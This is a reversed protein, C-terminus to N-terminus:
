SDPEEVQRLGEAAASLLARERSEIARVRDLQEVDIFTDVAERVLQELHAPDIAEVEVQILEGYKDVFRRARTDTAKGPAPVLGLDGIQEYTVALRRVEDFCWGTRDQLDREIDEGTPDLDGLYLAVAPRIDGEVEERIEDIITQSGYGRLPVVPIGFEDVWDSVQELLTAKELVLWALKDQGERRDRRYRQALSWVALHPSTWSALGSISRGQDLLAPFWGERRAEATRASLTKYSSDTNALLGESVLRYFLQRLTVATSYSGAIEAAREVIPQWRLNPM